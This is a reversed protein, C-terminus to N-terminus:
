LRNETIVSSVTKKQNPNPNLKLPLKTLFVHLTEATQKKEGTCKHIDLVCMADVGLFRETQCM